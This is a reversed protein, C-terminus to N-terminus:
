CPHGALGKEKKKLSETLFQNIILGCIIISLSIIISVYEYGAIIRPGGSRDLTISPKLMMSSIFWSSLGSVGIASFRLVRKLSLSLSKSALAKESAEKPFILVASKAQYYKMDHNKSNTVIKTIEVIRTDQMKNLHHIVLSLRLGTRESIENATMENKILLTFIKRSSENSLLEGLFKIREDETSFIEVKNEISDDVVPDETLIFQM